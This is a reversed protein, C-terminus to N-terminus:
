PRRMLDGHSPAFAKGDSFQGIHIARAFALALHDRSTARQDGSAPQAIPCGTGKCTMNGWAKRGGRTCGSPGEPPVHHHVGSLGRRHYERRLHRRQAITLANECTLLGDAGQGAIAAFAAELDGPTRVPDGVAVIVAPIPLGTTAEKAGFAASTGSAIIIFVQRRVLAAAREAFGEWGRETL